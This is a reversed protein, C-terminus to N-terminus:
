KITTQTRPTTHILTLNQLPQSVEEMSLIQGSSSMNQASLGPIICHKYIETPLEVKELSVRASHTASCSIHHTDHQQGSVSRTVEVGHDHSWEGECWSDINLDEDDAIMRM